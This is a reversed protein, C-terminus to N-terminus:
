EHNDVKKLLNMGACTLGILTASLASFAVHGAFFSYILLLYFIGSYISKQKWAIVAFYCIFATLLLWGILGLSFLSDFFDMEIYDGSGWNALRYSFGYGILFQGLHDSSIFYKWGEDLFTLRSSTILQIIQGGYFQYFYSLRIFLGSLSELVISKIKDAFIFLFFAGWLGSLVKVVVPIEYKNKLFFQCLYFLTVIVGIILGMKTGLIVLAFLNM